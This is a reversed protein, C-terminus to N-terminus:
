GRREIAVIRKEIETPRREIDHGIKRKEIMMAVFQKEFRIADRHTETAEFMEDWVSGIECIFYIRM